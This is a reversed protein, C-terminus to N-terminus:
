TPKEKEKEKEEEEKLPILIRELKVEVPFSGTPQLYPYKPLKVDRSIVLFGKHIVLHSRGLQVWSSLIWTGKLTLLM